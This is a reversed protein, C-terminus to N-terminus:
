RIYLLLLEMHTYNVVFSHLLNGNRWRGLLPLFLISPLFESHLMSWPFHGGGVQGRIATALVLTRLLLLLLLLLSPCMNQLLLSMHLIEMVLQGRAAITIALTILTLDCHLM